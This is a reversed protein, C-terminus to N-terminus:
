DVLAMARSVGLAEPDEPRLAIVRKWGQLGRKEGARERAAEIPNNRRKATGKKMGASQIVGQRRDVGCVTMDIVTLDDAPIAPPGEV